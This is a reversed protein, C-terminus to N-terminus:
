KYREKRASNKNKSKYTDLQSDCNPCVLRLNDRRNNAANGDIHDMIFVLKKGNWEDKSGCILCCNNQEKLIDPKFTKYSFNTRQYNEGGKLFLEYKDKHQKEQQCKFSCYKNLKNSYEIFINECYLCVGESYEIKSVGKNFHEDDSVIRRKELSLGMRLAAKKIASGSVNYLKGISEYSMKKNLIMDELDEKNYKGM